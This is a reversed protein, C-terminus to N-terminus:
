VDDFDDLRKRNENIIGAIKQRAAAKDVEIKKLKRDRRSLKSDDEHKEKKVDLKKAM